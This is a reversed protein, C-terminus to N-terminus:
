CHTIIGNVVVQTLLSVTGASCSVGAVGGVFYSAANMLGGISLQVQGTVQTAFTNSNVAFSAAAIGGSSGIGSSGITLGDFTPDATTNLAQGVASTVDSNSLTVAGTRTNFSSVYLPSGSGATCIGETFQSCYADTVGATGNASFGTTANLTPAQITNAANINYVNGITVASLSTSYQIVGITNIFYGAGNTLATNVGISASAAITSFHGDFSGGIVTSAGIAISGASLGANGGSGGVNFGVGSGTQWRTSADLEGIGSGSGTVTMSVGNTWLIRGADGYGKLQMARVTGLTATTAALDEIDIGIETTITGASGGIISGGAPNIVLGEHLNLTVGAELEELNSQIGAAVGETYPTVPLNFYMESVLPKVQGYICKLVGYISCGADDPLNMAGWTVVGSVGFGDWGPATGDAVGSNVRRANFQAGRLENSPNTVIMDGNAMVYGCAYGPPPSAPNCSGGGPQNNITANNGFSAWQMRVENFSNNQGFAVGAFAFLLFLKRM